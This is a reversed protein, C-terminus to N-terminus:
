PISWWSTTFPSPWGWPRVSVPFEEIVLCYSISDTEAGGYQRPAQMGFFNLLGMKEVAEWPFRGEEDIEKAIPALETKTFQRAM